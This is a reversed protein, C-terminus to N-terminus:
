YTIVIQGNGSRIGGQFLLNTMNPNAWSSGGGGGGSACQGDASGGGGYYGGGGGAGSNCSGYSANYGYAGGVGLSGSSGSSGYGGNPSGQGGGTLGGGGGGGTHGGYSYTSTGGATCTGPNGNQSYQGQASGIGGSGGQGNSCNTGGGGAGGSGGTGEGGGGGAVLIRDNLTSGGLRIDSAGGGHRGGNGTGGGNWGGQGGVYIEYTQGPTVTMTGKAYGGQGGGQSGQAGWAEFVVTTACAPATWTQVGGTYSFTVTNQGPPPCSSVTITQTTTTNCGANDTVTLSVSYTGAAPWTVSETQSSSTSPSGGQFTWSYVMGNTTATFSAAVGQSISNPVNFASSPPNQCDCIWDRWGSQPMYVQICNTTLNYISLGSAPNLIANRQTTTMRPLLFGGNTSQVDLVASPDPPNASGITVGQSFSWLPFISLLIAAIKKM